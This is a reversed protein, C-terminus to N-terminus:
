KNLINIFIDNSVFKSEERIITFVVYFVLGSCTFITHFPSLHMMLLPVSFVRDIAQVFHKRIMSRRFIMRMLSYIKNEVHNELLKEFLIRLKDILALHLFLIKIPNIKSSNIKAEILRHIQM